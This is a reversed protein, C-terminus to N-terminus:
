CVKLVEHSAKNTYTSEFDSPSLTKSQCRRAPNHYCVKPSLNPSLSQSVAYVSERMMLLM